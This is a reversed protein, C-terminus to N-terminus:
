LWGLTSPLALVAVHREEAAQIRHEGYSFLRIMTPLGPRAEEEQHQKLVHGLGSYEESLWLCDGSEADTNMQWSVSINILLAFLKSDELSLCQRLSVQIAMLQQAPTGKQQFANFSPQTTCRPQFLSSAPFALNHQGCSTLGMWRTLSTIALSGQVQTVLAFENMSGKWASYVLGLLVRIQPCLCHWILWYSTLCTSQAYCLLPVLILLM